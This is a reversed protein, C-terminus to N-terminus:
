LLMYAAAAALAVPGALTLGLVLASLWRVDAPGHREADQLLAPESALGREHGCEPCFILEGPVPRGCLPCPQLPGAQMARALPEHHGCSPCSRRDFAVAEGCAACFRVRGAETEGPKAPKM